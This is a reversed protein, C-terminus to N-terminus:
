SIKGSKKNSMRTVAMKLASGNKPTAKGSFKRALKMTKIPAKASLKQVIMPALAKNSKINAM